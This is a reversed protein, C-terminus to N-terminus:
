TQGRGEETWRQVKHQRQQETALDHGAKQSGHVATHWAERGESDGLTQECEHGDLQYHWGVM